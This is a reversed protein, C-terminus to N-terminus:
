EVEEGQNNADFGAMTVADQRITVDSEALAVAYINMVGNRAVASKRVNYQNVHDQPINAARTKLPAVVHADVKETGRSFRLNEFVYDDPFVLLYHNFHRRPDDFVAIKLANLAQRTVECQKDQPTQNHLNQFQTHYFPLSPIKIM